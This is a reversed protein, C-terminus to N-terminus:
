KQLLLLLCYKNKGYERILEESIIILIKAEGTRARLSIWSCSAWNSTTNCTNQPIESTQVQLLSTTVLWTYQYSVPWNCLCFLSLAPWGWQLWSCYCCATHLPLTRYSMKTTIWHRSSTSPVCFLLKVLMKVVVSSLNGHFKCHINITELSSLYHNWHDIFCNWM